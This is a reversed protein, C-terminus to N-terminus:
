FMKVQQCRFLHVLLSFLLLLLVLIHFNSLICRFPLNLLSIAQVDTGFLFSAPKILVPHCIFFNIKKSTQLLSLYADIQVEIPYFNKLIIQAGNRSVVYGFSGYYLAHKCFHHGLLYLDHQPHSVNILKEIDGSLNTSKITIDDELICVHSDTSNQLFDTLVKHHSLSCAVAGVSVIDSHSAREHPYQLLYQAHLSTANKIEDNTLLKGDVASVRTVDNLSINAKQFQKLMNEWRDTRRDLNIVKYKM